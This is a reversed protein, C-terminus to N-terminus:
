WSKRSRGKRWRGARRGPSNRLRRCQVWGGFVVRAEAPPEGDQKTAASNAGRHPPLLWGARRELTHDSGARRTGSLGVGSTSHRGDNGRSGTSRTPCNLWAPSHSLWDRIAAPTQPRRLEEAVAQPLLVSGYLAPLLGVEGILVLYHLPSADSVILPM